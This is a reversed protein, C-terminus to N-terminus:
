SKPLPRALQRAMVWAILALAVLKAVEIAIYLNHDNSAPPEQGAIILSVRQDLLPLLWVTEALVLLAAVIAAIRGLWSCPGMLILFLLLVSLAWELKGFVAFTHRGIDLAVPLALSPALFKAPTALFCVGLLLGLWLTAAVLASVAWGRGNLTTAM